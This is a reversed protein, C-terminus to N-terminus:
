MFATLLRMSRDFEIEYGQEDVFVARRVLSADEFCGTKIQIDM